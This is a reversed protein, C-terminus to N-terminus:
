FLLEYSRHFVDTLLTLCIEGTKQQMAAKTMFQDFVAINRTNIVLCRYNGRARLTIAKAITFNCGLWIWSHLVTCRRVARNKLSEETDDTKWLWCNCNLAEAARTVRFAQHCKEHLWQIQQRKRKWWYAVELAQFHLSGELVAHTSITSPLFFISPLETWPM